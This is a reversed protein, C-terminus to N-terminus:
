DPCPLVPNHAMAVTSQNDGYIISSATLAFKKLVYEELKM